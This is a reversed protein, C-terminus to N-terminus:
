AVGDKRRALGPPVAATTGVLRSNIREMMRQADARIATLGELARAHQAQADQYMELAADLQDEAENVAALASDIRADITAFEGISGLDHGAHPAEQPPRVPELRPPEIKKAAIGNPTGVSAAIPAAPKPPPMKLPQANQSTWDRVEAWDCKVLQPGHNDIRVAAYKEHAEVLTAPMGHQKSGGKQTSLDRAKVRRGINLAGIEPTLSRGM